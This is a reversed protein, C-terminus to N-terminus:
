LQKQTMGAMDRSKVLNEALSCAIDIEHHIGTEIGDEWIDEADLDLEDNWSVGYGGADVKVQNFLEPVNEFAKFQPFVPYLRDIDYKKEVGNQFVALLVFNELPQVSKIRHTM